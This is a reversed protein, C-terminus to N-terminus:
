YATGGLTDKAPDILIAGVGLHLAKGDLGHHETGMGALQNQADGAVGQETGDQHEALAAARHLDDAVM